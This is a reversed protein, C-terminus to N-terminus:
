QRCYFVYFRRTRFSECLEYDAGLLARARDEAEDPTYNETHLRLAIRPVAYDFQGTEVPVSHYYRSDYAAAQSGRPFQLLLDVDEATLDKSM